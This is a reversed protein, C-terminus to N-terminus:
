GGIRNGQSNGGWVTAIEIKDDYIAEQNNWEIIDTLM